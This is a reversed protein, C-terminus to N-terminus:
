SCTTDQHTSSDDAESRASVVGNQDIQYGVHKDGSVQGYVGMKYTSVDLECDGENGQVTDHIYQHGDALTINTCDANLSTFGILNPKGPGTGAPRYQGVGCSQGDHASNTCGTTTGTCSNGSASCGSCGAGLLTSDCTASARTEGYLKSNLLSQMGVNTINADAPLTERECFSDLEVGFAQWGKHLSTLDAKYANSKASKRYNNFAPIAISALVGMIAVVVMLEVLSFGRKNKLKKFM